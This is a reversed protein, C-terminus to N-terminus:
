YAGKMWKRGEKRPLIKHFLRFGLAKSLRWKHARGKEEQRKWRGGVMCIKSKTSYHDAHIEGPIMEVERGQLIEIRRMEWRWWTCMKRKRTREKVIKVCLDGQSAKIPPTDAAATNPRLLLTSAVPTLFWGLHALLYRRGFLSRFCHLTTLFSHWHLVVLSKSHL